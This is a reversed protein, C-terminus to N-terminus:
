GGEKAGDIAVRNINKGGKENSEATSYMSYAAVNTHCPASFLGRRACLHGIFHIVILIGCKRRGRAGHETRGQRGGDDRARHIHRAVHLRGLSYPNFPLFSFVTTKHKCEMADAQRASELHCFCPTLCVSEEVAASKLPATCFM